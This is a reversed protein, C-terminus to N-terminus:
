VQTSGGGGASRKVCVGVRRQWVWVGCVFQGGEEGGGDCVGVGGCALLLNLGGAEAQRLPQVM